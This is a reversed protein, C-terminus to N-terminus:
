INELHEFVDAYAKEVSLNKLCFNYGNKGLKNRLIKDNYLISFQNFLEEPSDAFAYRGMNNEVLLNGLDNDRDISALVPIGANLYDNLKMPTNPVSFDQHLSILGIDSNSLLNFYEKRPVSEIFKLNSIAKSQAIKKLKEVETGKGIILFVVDKYDKCRIALKLVNELQQPKGMNGGFIVVFKHKLDTYTNLNSSSSSSFLKTSNYLLKVKDRNLFHYHKLFYQINGTSTCGVIDATTLLKIENKKFFKFILSKKKMLGLDVANQPFIDKQMLYVRAKKIRKIYFVYDAFMVSPTAVIVLDVPKEKWFSQYSKKYQYSLFLNAFGKELVNKSFVDFTKVRLVEIGNELSIHSNLSGSLIPAMPLVSHGNKKFENVMDSYM